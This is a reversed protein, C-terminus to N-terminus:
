KNDSISSISNFSQSVISSQEFDISLISSQMGFGSVYWWRVGFRGSFLQKITTNFKKFNELEARAEDTVLDKTEVFPFANDRAFQTAGEGVRIHPLQLSSRSFMM